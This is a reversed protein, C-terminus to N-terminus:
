PLADEFGEEVARAADILDLCRAHLATLAARAAEAEAAEPAEGLAAFLAASEAECYQQLVDAPSLAPPESLGACSCAVLALVLASAIRGM